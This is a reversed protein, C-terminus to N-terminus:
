EQGVWLAAACSLGRVGRADESCRKEVALSHPGGRGQGSAYETTSCQIANRLVISDSYRMSYRSYWVATSYNIM